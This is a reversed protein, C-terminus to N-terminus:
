YTSPELGKEPEMTMEACSIIYPRTGSHGFPASQLDALEAKPPEFGGGDVVWFRAFLAAGCSLVNKKRLFLSLVCGVSLHNLPRLCVSPFRAYALVYRPNSDRGRRWLFVPRGKQPPENKYRRLAPLFWSPTMPESLRACLKPLVSLMIRMARVGRLSLPTIGGEGGFAGSKFGLPQFRTNKRNERYERLETLDDKDLKFKTPTQPSTNYFIYVCDDFLVVRYIFSNFFENKEENNQYQKRAFYTM